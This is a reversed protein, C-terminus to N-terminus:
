LHHESIDDCYSKSNLEILKIVFILKTKAKASVALSVMVSDSFHYRKRQGSKKKVFAGERNNSINIPRETTFKSEDSFWIVM